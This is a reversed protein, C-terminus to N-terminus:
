RIGSDIPSNPSRDRAGRVVRKAAYPLRALTSSWAELYRTPAVMTASSLKYPEEGRMWDLVDYDTGLVVRRLAAHNALRGASFEAGGPSVRNDWVRLARGDRLAAVYAALDGDIELLLLEVEGTAALSTLVESYFAARAPVSHDSVRGLQADRARHVATLRPVAARVDDLSHLWSETVARGSGALRNRAKNEAQRANRSLYRHLDRDDVVVMPM